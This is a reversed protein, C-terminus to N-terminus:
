IESDFKSEEWLDVLHGILGGIFGFTVVVIIYDM